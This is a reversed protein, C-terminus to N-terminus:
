QNYRTTNLYEFNDKIPNAIYDSYYRGEGYSWHRMSVPSDSIFTIIDYRKGGEYVEGKLIFDGEKKGEFAFGSLSIIEWYTNECDNTTCYSLKKINIPGNLIIRGDKDTYAFYEGEIDKLVVNERENSKLIPKIMNALEPTLATYRSLVDNCTQHEIGNSEYYKELDATKEDKLIVLDKSEKTTNNSNKADKSTCSFIIALLPLYM